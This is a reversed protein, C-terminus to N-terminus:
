IVKVMNFFPLMIAMIITWVVIWVVVIVLPEIATQINKVVNDIEKNMKKSIKILLDAMKWTEEWIKVVSSLEIPFLFNEKWSKIENVWMLSSLALWKSVRSQIEKLHKEYYDNELVRSSIELSQNIMVWNKLLIWLSSAFIALIKKKILIGFLPIRIIMYDWYIKTKKWRKFISVFIIFVFIWILIQFIYKQVFDSIQIVISTLEPLNVKADKYMKTIKPIVYVMFVWIMSISLTVIVIPYILAWLIKWKLEREKEEKQKITEIADWLKWTAEWMDVIALDFYWFINPFHLFATKLNEWSNLTDIIKKYIKKNRKSKTQYLIIKLANILAIGSNLLSSLQELFNIKEKSKLKSNRIDFFNLRSFINNPKSKEM